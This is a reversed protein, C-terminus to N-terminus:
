RRGSGELREGPLKGTQYKARGHDRRMQRERERERESALRGDRMCRCNRSAVNPSPRSALIRSPWRGVNVSGHTCLSERGDARSSQCNAECFPRTGHPGAQALIGYTHPKMWPSRGEPRFLSRSHLLLVIIIIIGGVAQQATGRM